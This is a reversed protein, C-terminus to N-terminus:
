EVVQKSMKKWNRMSFDFLDRAIRQIEPSCDAQRYECQRAINRWFPPLQDIRSVMGGNKDPVVYLMKKIGANIIRTLCMPCPEVSSILVLNKCERPDNGSASGGKKRMQDEYRTLLDMEAHRDSRFYPAYQRNRGRAVVRGTTEDVLCAGIGGSGEELSIMADRIVILGYIDDQRGPQPKVADIRKKLNEISPSDARASFPVGMTFACALCIVLYLPCSSRFRNKM